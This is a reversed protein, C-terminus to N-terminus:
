LFTSPQTLGKSSCQSVTSLCTSSILISDGMILFSLSCPLSTWLSRAVDLISLLPSEQNGLRALYGPGLTGRCSSRLLFYWGGHVWSWYWLWRAVRWCIPHRNITLSLFNGCLYNHGPGHFPGAMLCSLDHLAVHYSFLLFAFVRSIRKDVPNINILSISHFRQSQSECHNAFCYHESIITLMFWLKISLHTSPLIPWAFSCIGLRAPSPLQTTSGYHSRGFTGAVHLAM